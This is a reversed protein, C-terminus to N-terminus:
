ILFSCVNVFLLYLKTHIFIQLIKILDIFHSTKTIEVKLGFKLLSNNKEKELPLPKWTIKPTVRYNPFKPIPDYM